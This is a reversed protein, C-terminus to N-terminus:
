LSEWEEELFGARGKRASLKLVPIMYKCSEAVKEVATIWHEAITAERCKKAIDRNRLGKVKMQFVLWQKMTLIEEATKLIMAREEQSAKDRNRLVFYIRKARGTM